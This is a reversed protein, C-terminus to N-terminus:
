PTQAIVTLRARRCCCQDIHREVYGHLPACHLHLSVNPQKLLSERRKHKPKDPPAKATRPVFANYWSDGEYM